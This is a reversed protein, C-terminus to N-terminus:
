HSALLAEKTSESLYQVIKAVVEQRSLFKKLIRETENIFAQEEPLPPIDQVARALEYIDGKRLSPGLLRLNYAFPKSFDWRALRQGWSPQHMLERIRDNLLKEITERSPPEMTDSDLGYDGHSRRALLVIFTPVRENLLDLLQKTSPYKRDLKAVEAIYDDSVRSMDGRLLRTLSRRLHKNEMQNTRKRMEKLCTVIFERWVSEKAVDIRLYPDHTAEPLHDHFRGPGVFQGWEEYDAMSSPPPLMIETIGQQHAQDLVLALEPFHKRALQGMKHQAILKGYAELEAAKAKDFDFRARVQQKMREVYLRPSAILFYNVPSFRIHEEVQKQIELALRRESALKRYQQMEEPLLPVESLRNRLLLLPKLSRVFITRSNEDVFRVGLEAVRQDSGLLFDRVQQMEAHLAQIGQSTSERKRWLQLLAKDDRICSEVIAEIKDRLQKETLQTKRNRRLSLNKVRDSLCDFYYENNKYDLYIARANEGKPRNELIENLKRTRWINELPLFLNWTLLDNIRKITLQFEADSYKNNFLPDFSEVSDPSACLALTPGLEVNLLQGEDIWNIIERAGTVQDPPFDRLYWKKDKRQDVKGSRMLLGLSKRITGKVHQISDQDTYGLKVCIETLTLPGEKELM